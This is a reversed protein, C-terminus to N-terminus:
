NQLLSARSSRHVNGYTSQDQQNDDQENEELVRLLIV